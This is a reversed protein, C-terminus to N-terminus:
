NLPYNDRKVDRNVKSCLPQLNTYHCLKLLEEETKGSSLPKIHDLDWGCNFEGNYLGYNSWNMWPQFKSEIYTKFEEFSCGLVDITNSKKSYGNRKVLMCLDRRLGCKLKYLPDTKRRIKTRKNNTLKVKDVNNKRYKTSQKNLKEKNKLYYKQQSLKKKDPNELYYKKIRESENNKDSHIKNYNKNYENVKDKNIKRYQKSYLRSKEKQEDTLQKKM